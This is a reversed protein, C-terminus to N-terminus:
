SLSIFFVGLSVFCMGIIKALTVSEGLFLWSAGLITLYVIGSLGMMYGLEAKSLLSVWFLVAIGSLTFSLLIFPDKIMKIISGFIEKDLDVVGIRSIGYKLLVQAITILLVMISLLVLLQM